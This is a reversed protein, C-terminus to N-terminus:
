VVTTLTTTAFASAVVVALVFLGVAMGGLIASGTAPKRAAPGYILFGAIGGVIFGGLHGGASIGPVM